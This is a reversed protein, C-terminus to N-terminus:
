LDDEEDMKNNLAERLQHTCDMLQSQAQGLIDELEERTLPEEADAISLVLCANMGCIVTIDPYKGVLSLMDNNVSGNLVDTLIYVADEPPFSDLLRSTKQVINETEDRTTAVACVNPLEGMIMQVTDLMGASLGGHSALIVRNMRMVTVKRNGKNEAHSWVGFSKNRGTRGDEEKITVNMMFTIITIYM